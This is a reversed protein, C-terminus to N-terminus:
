TEKKRLKFFTCFILFADLLDNHPTMEKDLQGREDFVASRLAIILENFKPDIVFLERPDEILRRAHSAMEAKSELNFFVPVIEMAKNIDWGNAKYEQMKKKIKIWNDEEGIRGKLSMAYEQRSTADIGINMVNKYERRYRLTREIMQEYKPMPIEEAVLVRIKRLKPEWEGLIIAFKSTIYGLDEAMYKETMERTNVLPAIAKDIAAQNFLNGSVSIFNCEYNQSYLTPGLRIREADLFSQSIVNAKVGEQASIHHVSFQAEHLRPDKEKVLSQQYIEFTKKFPGRPPTEVIFTGDTTALRSFAASFTSSDDKLNNAAIDSMHIHAVNAWSWLAAESPGKGIIRTKKKPNDPNRIHVEAMKSKEEKFTMDASDTILYKRYKPSNIVMTKLRLLHENATEQRQAILLIDKGKCTTLAKQFDELLVSTTVGIKQSKIILRYKSKDEWIRKQYPALQKVEEGTKSHYLHGFDDYFEQPDEPIIESPFSRSQEEDEFLNNEFPNKFKQSM